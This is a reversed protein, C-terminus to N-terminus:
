LNANGFYQGAGTARCSMIQHCTIIITAVDVTVCHHGDPHQAFLSISLYFFFCKNRQQIDVLGYVSWRGFVLSVVM